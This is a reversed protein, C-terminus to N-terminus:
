TGSERSRAGRPSLTPLDVPKLKLGDEIRQACQPCSCAVPGSKPLRLFPGSNRGQRSFTEWTLDLLAVLSPDAMRYFVNLGDKRDKVLGARRLLMLQQSIYAQRLGLIAQIHCVCAEGQRLIDLIALRVPHALAKLYRAQRTYADM